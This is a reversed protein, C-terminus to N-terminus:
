SFMSIGLLLEAISFLIQFNLATSCLADHLDHDSSGLSYKAAFVPKSVASLSGQLTQVSETYLDESVLGPNDQM